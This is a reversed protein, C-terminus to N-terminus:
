YDITCSYLLVVYAAAVQTCCTRQHGRRGETEQSSYKQTTHVRTCLMRRNFRLLQRRPSVIDDTSWPLAPTQSATAEDRSEPARGIPSKEVRLQILRYGVSAESGAQLLFLKYPAIILGFRNTNTGWGCVCVGRPIGTGGQVFCHSLLPTKVHM